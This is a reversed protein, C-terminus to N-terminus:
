SKLTVLSARVHGRFGGAEHKERGSRRAWACVLGGPQALLLSGASRAGGWRRRRKCL